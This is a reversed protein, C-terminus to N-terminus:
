KHRGVMGPDVMGVMEWLFTFQPCPLSKTFANAPNEHTPIYPFHLDKVMVHECVYHHQIDIHKMWVHFTADKTLINSSINNCYVSTLGKPSFGILMLLTQVWMCEKTTHCSAMYEGEMSLM